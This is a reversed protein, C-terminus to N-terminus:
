SPGPAARIRAALLLAVLWLLLLAASLLLAVNIGLWGGVVGVSLGSFLRMGLSALAYAGIIRGRLPPPSNLQVLTQSMSNFSLEFFGAAFLLPLALVYAHSLAFGGLAVCWLMALLLTTGTRPPLLGRSELLVGALLAGAADAALLLSYTIGPDGHGLIRAFGPMQAQYSNGILASAGGALLMMLLITRQGRITRLTTLLDQLGSNGPLLHARKVRYPRTRPLAWCLLPLYILANIALGTAPSVLLMLASGVAPGLLMGLTRGTASLRVASQLHGEPVIDHLLLMSSPNWLAGALGHVILLLMAHWMQLTGSAILAAWTLSVGMFLLMGIVIFRRPDYREALRSISMSFLLFPLWHSIVAFGGLEPSAFKQYIVWYSIVHETNDALM